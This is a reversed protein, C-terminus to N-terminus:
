GSNPAAHPAPAELLRIASKRAPETLNMYGQTTKLDSHGALEKIAIAPAGRMALQSCFSHRLIHVKRSATM